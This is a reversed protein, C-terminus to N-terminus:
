LLVIRKKFTIFEVVAVRKGLDATSILLSGCGFVAAGSIGIFWSRDGILLDIIFAAVLASFVIFIKVGIAGIWYKWVVSKFMESTYKVTVEKDM